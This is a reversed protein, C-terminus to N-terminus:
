PMARARAWQPPKIKPPSRRNRRGRQASAKPQPPWKAPRTARRRGQRACRRAGRFASQAKDTVAGAASTVTDRLEEAGYRAGALRDELDSRVAGALDSVKETGQHVVDDVKAKIEKTSQQGRKSTLFLGAGILLLPTPIARLLSWRRTPSRRVSRQWRCRITRPGASSRSCWAKASKACTIGSKKKSIRRALRPDEVRDRHQRGHRATRGRHLGARRAVTRIRRAARRRITRLTSPM